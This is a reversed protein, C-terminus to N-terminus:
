AHIELSIPVHDSIEKRYKSLDGDEYLKVAEIRVAEEKVVHGIKGEDYSFHDYNNAYIDDPPINEGERIQKLSSLKDQITIINRSHGRDNVILVDEKLYPYGTYPRNLSINYDGLLFTYAPMEQGTRIDTCKPLIKSALLNFENLRMQNENALVSADLSGKGYRIHTNILRIEYFRNVPQFRAFYPNRLLVTQGPEDKIKFDSVIRPNEKDPINMLKLRKDNWIFAYGEQKSTNRSVPFACVCKWEQNFGKNNNLTKTLLKIAFDSLVEQVGIVDMKEKIIIESIKSFNKKTDNDARLNFDLLNFSGIKYSM